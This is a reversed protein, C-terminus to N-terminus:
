DLIRCERNEEREMGEQYYKEWFGKKDFEIQSYYTLGDRNIYINNRVKEYTKSSQGELLNVFDDKFEWVFSAKSSGASGKCEYTHMGENAKEPSLGGCGIMIGGGVVVLVIVRGVRVVPKWINGVIKRGIIYWGAVMIMAIIIIINM